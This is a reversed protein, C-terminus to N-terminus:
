MIRPNRILSSEKVPSKELNDGDLQFNWAKSKLRHRWKTASSVKKGKCIFCNCIVPESM